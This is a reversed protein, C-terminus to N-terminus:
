QAKSIRFIQKTSDSSFLVTGDPINFPDPDNDPDLDVVDMIGDGRLAWGTVDLPDRATTDRDLPLDTRFRLM